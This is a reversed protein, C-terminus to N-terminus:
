AIKYEVYNYYKPRTDIRIHLWSVGLGSTSLWFKRKSDRESGLINLFTKGIGRWLNSVHSESAGVHFSALHTMYQPYNFRSTQYELPTPVVLIADKRLNSFSIVGDDREHAVQQFQDQFATLDFQRESLAPADLIVFELPISNATSQSVPTCEWFIASFQQSSSHHRMITSMLNILATDGDRLNELFEQFTILKENQEIHYQFGGPIDGIHVNYNPSSMLKEYPSPAALFFTYILFLIGIAFAFSTAIFTKNSDNSRKNTPPHTALPLLESGTM